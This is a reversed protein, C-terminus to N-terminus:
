HMDGLSFNAACTGFGIVFAIISFLIIKLSLKKDDSIFILRGIGFFFALVSILAILVGILVLFDEM